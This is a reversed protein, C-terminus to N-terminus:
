APGKGGIVSADYKRATVVVQALEPIGFHEAWAKVHSLHQAGKPVFHFFLLHCFNTKGLRPIRDRYHWQSSGGFVIAQGECLEYSTFRNDPDNKIAAEWDAGEECSWAEPWPRVQSLYIPWPASQEICYDLTWKASPADMHVACVGLNNYLSLFNYCPEVPEGCLESMREVLTNQLAACLPADHVVGRGFRLAEHKEYENAPLDAILAKLQAHESASLIGEVQKVEFSPDTRLVDFARQFEELRRPHNRRIFATARVYSTLWISDYWPFSM